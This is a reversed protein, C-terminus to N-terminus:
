RGFILALVVAGAVIWAPNTKLALAAISGLTLALTFPDIIAARGVQWLVYFLMAMFAALLGRLSSAVAGIRRLRELHPAALVLLLASPLFVCVTAFVAALLGGRHYGIFTATVIVPGPTVQSLALGDIFEHPALWSNAVVVQEYMLAVATYGGGFALLNVKVMVAGLRPYLPSLRGSLLIGGVFLVLVVGVWALTRGYSRRPPAASAPADGAADGRPTAPLAAAPGFSQRWLLLVGALGAGALVLVVNLRLLLAATAALAILVGRWDKLAAAGMSVISGVVIGVTAARMGKLLAVMIPLGGFRFYAAALGLMLLFAPAVYCVLTVLAGLGRHLRWGIHAATQVAIPGPILQCFAVSDQFQGETLWRKRLVVVQRIQAVIAPGGYSTLGILFFTWALELRSVM